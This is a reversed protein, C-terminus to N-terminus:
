YDNNFYKKDLGRYMLSEKLHIVSVKEEGAIDAITRAVRLLKYYTRGTLEYKDYIKEMFSNETDGLMCIRAVDNSPIDSNYNYPVDAFREKQINHVQVVRERIIKSSENDCKAIIDKYKVQSAEACM